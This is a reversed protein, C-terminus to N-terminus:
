SEYKTKVFKSDVKLKQLAWMGLALIRYAHLSCLLSAGWMMIKWAKSEVQNVYRGRALAKVMKRVLPNKGYKSLAKVTESMGKYILEQKALFFLGFCLHFAIIDNYEETIGRASLFSDFDSAIATWVSIYNSQYSATVSDCNTRYLYVSEDIFAYVPQSTCCTINFSKDESFPYSRFELNNETLFARRYLKGWPFSLHGYLIFGKFRFDVTETYAGERLRHHNVGSPPYQGSLKRFAGVVIDAQKKEAQEVMRRIAHAGDLCDDSDVFVIYKGTAAEMGTNRAVGPGQRSQHITKIRDYTYRYRDCKESCADPSGDNVLIIELESYDQAIVSNVCEDLFKEANYVPIIVSVTPKDM